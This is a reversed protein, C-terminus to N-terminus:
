KQDATPLSATIAKFKQVLSKFFPSLNHKVCEIVVEYYDERASVDDFTAETIKVGDRTCQKLCGFLAAQFEDSSDVAMVAQPILSVVKSLEMNSIDSATDIGSKAIERVMANKLAMVSRFDAHTIVIQAGSTATFKNDAM